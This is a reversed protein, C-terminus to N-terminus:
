PPLISSAATPALSPAAPDHLRHRALAMAPSRTAYCYACGHLCTDPAGIDRSRVCGCHTRQGPDKANAVTVNFTRRLYADDICKGSPVGLAELGRPEACSRMEMGCASAEALLGHILADFRPFGFPAECFPQGTVAALDRLRGTTKRYFDVLSIIVHNTYGQLARAISRFTALHYDADLEASLIIPDYRWIVRANGVRAALEQFTAVREEFPPVNPELACPYRNLTFLFFYRLGRRDLERLRPLLPAPNKSWFAIADTTQPALSVRSVIAPNVPNAVLCSGAEVRRMFWDAFFAPIDTRRSASIIM